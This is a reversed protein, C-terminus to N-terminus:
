DERGNSKLNKLSTNVFWMWLCFIIGYVLLTFTYTHNFALEGPSYFNIMVLAVVRLVNAFHIILIGLPIFWFKRKANGPFAVIFLSFFMFLTLANCPSGVWVPHAGDIGVLQMNSDEMSQYANYNFLKLVTAANNVIVGVLYEDAMTHPIIVLQYLLYWSLYLAAAIVFFRTLKNKLDIRPM